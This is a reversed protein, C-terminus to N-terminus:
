NSQKENNRGWDNLYAAYASIKACNEDIDIQNNIQELHFDELAEVELHSFYHRIAALIDMSEAESKGARISIGVGYKGRPFATGGDNTNCYPTTRDFFVKLHGTVYGWYSPTAICIIDAACLQRYLAPYDDDQVCRHRTKCTGCGLCFNINYDAIHEKVAEFVTTDMGEIIRDILHNTNGNRRPSGNLFLIRMGPGDM